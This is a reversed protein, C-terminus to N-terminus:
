SVEEEMTEDEPLEGPPAKLSIAKYDINKGRLHEPIAVVAPCPVQGPIECLCLRSFENGFNAPNTKKEKAKREAALIEEPKGLLKAVHEVINTNSKSDIDILVEEGENLFCRIFPSPTINKFTLMQVNPNRYQLQPLNYFVFDRAGQHSDGKTNYNITFIKVSDRLFVNGRELYRLTRRLPFKGKM